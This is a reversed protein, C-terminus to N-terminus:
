RQVCMTLHNTRSVARDSLTVGYKKELWPKLTTWELQYAPYRQERLDSTAPTWSESRRASGFSQM